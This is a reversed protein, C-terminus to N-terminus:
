LGRTVRIRADREEQKIIQEAEIANNIKKQKIEDVLDGIFKRYNKDMTLQSKKTMRKTPIPFGTGNLIDYIHGVVRSTKITIEYVDRRGYKNGAGLRTIWGDKTLRHLRTYDWNLLRQMKGFKYNSFYVEDHIYFLVDLDEQTLKYKVLAHRRVVRWYKMYNKRQLEM